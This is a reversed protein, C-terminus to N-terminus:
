MNPFSDVMSVAEEQSHSLNLSLPHHGDARQATTRLVYLPSVGCGTIRQRRENWKYEMVLASVVGAFTASSHSEIM